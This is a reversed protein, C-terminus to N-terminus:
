FIDELDIPYNDFINIPVNFLQRLYLTQKLGICTGYGIKKIWFNNWNRVAYGEVFNILRNKVFRNKWLRDFIKKNKECILVIFM